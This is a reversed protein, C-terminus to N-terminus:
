ELVLSLAYAQMLFQVTLIEIINFEFLNQTLYMVSESKVSAFRDLRRPDSDFGLSHQIRSKKQTGSRPGKFSEDFVQSRM